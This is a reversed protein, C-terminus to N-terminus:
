APGVVAAVLPRVGYDGAIRLSNCCHPDPLYPTCCDCGACAGIRCSDMLNFDQRRARGLAIYASIPFTAGAQGHHFVRRGSRLEVV